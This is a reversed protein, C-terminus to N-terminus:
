EAYTGLLVFFIDDQVTNIPYKLNEPTAWTRIEYVTKFVDYGGMNQHGRSSFYLTKKYQYRAEVILVPTVTTLFWFAFILLLLASTISWLKKNGILQKLQLKSKVQHWKLLLNLFFIQLKIKAINFM